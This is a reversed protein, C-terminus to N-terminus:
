LAERVIEQLESTLSILWRQRYLVVQEDFWEKAEEVTPMEAGLPGYRFLAEAEGQNHQCLHEDQRMPICQFLGKYGTGSSASRRVHCAPNRGVGDVYETFLGSLCSPRYSVWLRFNKDLATTSPAKM